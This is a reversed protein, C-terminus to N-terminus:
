ERIQQRGAMRRAPIIAARVKPPPPFAFTFNKLACRRSFEDPAGYIVVVIRAGQGDANLSRTKHCQFIVMNALSEEEDRTEGFDDGTRLPRM